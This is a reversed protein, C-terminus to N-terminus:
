GAKRPRGRRRPQPPSPKNRNKLWEIAEEPDVRTLDGITIHPMGQQVLRRATRGSCQLDEEGFQDLTKLRKPPKLEEPTHDPM